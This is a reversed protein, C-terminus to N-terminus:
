GIPEGFALCDANECMPAEGAAEAPLASVGCSSCIPSPDYEDDDWLSM